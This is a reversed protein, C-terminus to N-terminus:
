VQKKKEGEFNELVKGGENQGGWNEADGRIASCPWCHSVIDTGIKPLLFFTVNEAVDAM